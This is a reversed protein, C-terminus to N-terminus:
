RSWKISMFLRAQCCFLFALSVYIKANDCLAKSDPRSGAGPKKATISTGKARGTAGCFAKADKYEKVFDGKCQMLQSTGEPGIQLFTDLGDCAEEKEAGTKTM